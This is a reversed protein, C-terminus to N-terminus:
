GRLEGRLIYTKNKNESYTENKRIYDYSSRDYWKGM